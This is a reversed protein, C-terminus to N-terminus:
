SYNELSQINTAAKQETTDLHDRVAETINLNPSQNIWDLNLNPNMVEDFGSGSTKLGSRKWSFPKKVAM